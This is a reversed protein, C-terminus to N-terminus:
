GREEREAVVREQLRPPRRLAQPAVPELDALLLPDEEEAPLVLREEGHGVRLVLIRAASSTSPIGAVVALSMAM